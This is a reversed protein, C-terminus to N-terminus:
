TPNLAVSVSRNAVGDPSTLLDARVSVRTIPSADGVCLDLVNDDSPAGIHDDFAEPAVTSGDARSLEFGGLEADDLESLADSWYTRVVQLAEPCRHPGPEVLHAFVITPAQPRPEM